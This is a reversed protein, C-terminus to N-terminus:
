QQSIQGIREQILPKVAPKLEISRAFDREAEIKRGEQLQLLGRNVYAELNHSNIKIAETFDAMAGQSDGMGMRAIGRNNYAMVYRPDNQLAKDFDALAGNLDGEKLLLTGRNYFAETWQVTELCKSYDAIAAPFDGRTQRVLGRKFYAPAFDPVFELAINYAGIARAFDEQKAFKDGLEVYSAATAERTEAQLERVSSFFYLGVIAGGFLLVKGM